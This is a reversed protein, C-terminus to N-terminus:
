IGLKKPCFKVLSLFAAQTEGGKKRSFFFCQFIANKQSKSELCTFPKIVFRLTKKYPANECSPFWFFRPCSMCITKSLKIKKSNAM